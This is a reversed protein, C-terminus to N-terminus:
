WHKNEYGPISVTDDDFRASKAERHCKDCFSLSKVKSNGKIMKEPIEEHKRKIYPVETIRLPAEDAKLSVMIKKSRKFHSKDASHQALYDEIHKRTEEDLEANEGFHDELASAQVLKRWSAEPLLGPQYAFHCASCEEQYKDDKVPVVENKRKFSFLWSNFTDEDASAVPISLAAILMTSFIKLSKM